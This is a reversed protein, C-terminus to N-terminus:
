ENGQFLYSFETGYEESAPPFVWRGLMERICPDLARFQMPGDVGVSKVRGSLGISVKVTIKGHTLSSDRLLARQYCTKIGAKNNNIVRSIEEQSPPRREFTGASPVQMARGGTERFRSASTDEPAAPIPGATEHGGGGGRNLRAQVRTKGPGVTATKGKVAATEGAAPNEQPAGPKPKEQAVQDALNGFQSEGQPAKALSPAEAPVSKKFVNFLIVFVIVGVVGLFGLILKASRHRGQAVDPVRAAADWGTMASASVLRPAAAQQGNRAAASDAAAGAPMVTALNLANLADSEAQPMAVSPTAARMSGTGGVGNAPKGPRFPPPPAADEISSDIEEAVAHTASLRM